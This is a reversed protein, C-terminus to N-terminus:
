MIKRLLVEFLNRKNFFKYRTVSAYKNKLEQNSERSEVKYKNMRRFM